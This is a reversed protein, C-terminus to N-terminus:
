KSMSRSKDNNESKADAGNSLLLEAIENEGFKCSWYLPTSGDKDNHYVDAGMDSRVANSM